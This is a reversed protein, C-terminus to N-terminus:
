IQTINKLATQLFIYKKTVFCINRSYIRIKARFDFFFVIILFIINATM